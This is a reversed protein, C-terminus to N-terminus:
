SNLKEIQERYMEVMEELLAIRKDKEEIITQQDMVKNKLTRVSTNALNKGHNFAEEDFQRERIFLTDIPIDLFDAIKELREATPNANRILQSLSGNSNVDLASLLDKALKGRERLLDKIIEGNYM